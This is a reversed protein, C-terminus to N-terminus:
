HVNLQSMGQISPITLRPPLLTLPPSAAARATLVRSVAEPEAISRKDLSHGSDPFTRTNQTGSDPSKRKEKSRILLGDWALHEETRWLASRHM